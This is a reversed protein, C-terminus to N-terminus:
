GALRAGREIDLAFNRIRTSFRRNLSRKTLRMSQIILRASLTTPRAELEVSLRTRKASLPILEVKMVMNMGGSRARFLMADPPTWEELEMTIRRMKKRFEVQIRWMMGAGPELMDDTRVVDVGRKMALREFADFDSVRDFVYHQDAEIDESATFKM